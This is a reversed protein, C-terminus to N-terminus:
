GFAINGAGNFKNSETGINGNGQDKIQTSLTLYMMGFLITIKAVETLKM